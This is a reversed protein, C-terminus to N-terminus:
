IVMPQQEIFPQLTEPLERYNVSSAQGSLDVSNYTNWYLVPGSNKDPGQCYDIVAAFTKATYTPDLVINESMRAKHYAANGEPTPFGYGEGIYDQLIQPPTIKICPLRHIKKRLFKYTDRM